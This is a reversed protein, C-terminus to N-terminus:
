RDGVRLSESAAQLQQWIEPWRDKMEQSPTEALQEVYANATAITRALEPPMALVQLNAMAAVFQDLLDLPGRGRGLSPLRGALGSM